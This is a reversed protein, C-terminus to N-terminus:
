IQLRSHINALKLLSSNFDDQFLTLNVFFLNKNKNSKTCCEILIHLIKHNKKNQISIKIKIINKTCKHVNFLFILM